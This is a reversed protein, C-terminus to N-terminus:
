HTAVCIRSLWDLGEYLGDGTPACCSQVHWPRVRIERLGLGEEARSTTRDETKDWQNVFVLLPVTAMGNESLTKDLETRVNVMNESGDVVLILGRCDMFYKTLRTRAKAAQEGFDWSVFHITKYNIEMIQFENGGLTYTNVPGLKTKELITTKGSHPFGLM